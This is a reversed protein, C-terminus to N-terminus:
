HSITLAARYNISLRGFLRDQPMIAAIATPQLLFQFVVIPVSFRVDANRNAQASTLPARGKPPDSEACYRAVDLIQTAIAGTAGPRATLGWRGPLGSPRESQRPRASRAKRRDCKLEEGTEGSSVFDCAADRSMARTPEDHSRGM